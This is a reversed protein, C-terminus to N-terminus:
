RGHAETIGGADDDHTKRELKAVVDELRGTVDKLEDLVEEQTELLEETEAEAEPERHQWPWRPM